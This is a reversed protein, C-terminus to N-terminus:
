GHFITIKGDTKQINVLPYDNSFKTGFHPSEIAGCPWFGIFSSLWEGAM